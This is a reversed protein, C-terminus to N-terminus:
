SVSLIANFMEDISEKSVNSIQIHITSPFTELFKELEPFPRQEKALSKIEAKEEESYSYTEIKELMTEPNALNEIVVLNRVRHEKFYGIYKEFRKYTQPIYRNVLITYSDLLNNMYHFEYFNPKSIGCLQSLKDEYYLPGNTFSLLDQKDNNYLKYIDNSIPMPGLYGCFVTQYSDDDKPVFVQNKLDICTRIASIYRLREKSANFKNTEMAEGPKRVIRIKKFRKHFLRDWIVDSSYVAQFKKNLTGMILTENVNLFESFHIQLMQKGFFKHCKKYKVESM